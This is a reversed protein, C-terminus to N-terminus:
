AKGELAKKLLEKARKLRVGANSESIGLIQGIEGYDLGELALMM